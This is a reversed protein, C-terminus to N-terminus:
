KLTVLIEKQNRKEEKGEVESWNDTLTEVSTSYHIFGYNLSQEDGSVFYKDNM